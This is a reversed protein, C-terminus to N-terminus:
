SRLNEYTIIRGLEEGLDQGDVIIHLKTNTRDSVRDYTRCQVVHGGSARHIVLELGATDIDISTQRGYASGISNTKPVDEIAYLKTRLWNFIFNM